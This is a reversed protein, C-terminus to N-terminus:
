RGGRVKAGDAKSGERPDASHEGRSPGTVTTERGEGKMGEPDREWVIRDM